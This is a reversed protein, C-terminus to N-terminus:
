SASQDPPATRRWGSETVIADLRVDHPEIPLQELVQAEWCVGVSTARLGVLFRDYWGLGRGIRQGTATVAVAPVLVVDPRLDPEVSPMAGPEAPDWVPLVVTKGNGGCWEILGTLDPEGPRAEYAMVVGAGVIVPSAVLHAVIEASRAAPDDISRRRELMTARIARKAVVVEDPGAPEDGEPVATPEPM